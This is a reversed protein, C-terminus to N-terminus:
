IENIEPPLNEKELFKEYKYKEFETALKFIYKFQSQEWGIHVTITERVILNGKRTLFYTKYWDTMGTDQIESLLFWNNDDIWVTDDITKNEIYKKNM